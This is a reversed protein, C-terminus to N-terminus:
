KITKLLKRTTGIEDWPHEEWPNDPDKTGGSGVAREITKEHGKGLLIVTDGKKAQMLALEIAQTRNHVLFLDQDRVKGSEEAGHAIQNMIETGDIDRDDEETVVVLDAYKGALRGQIARKSEDRRGASGFLAILRGKVVPRLDKFLKEFSDPTHAFDVIVDFSQGEDVRTMRGEVNDLNAIGAEIQKAELGLAVGVSAAALSNAVNFSGPLNCKLKLKVGKIETEYTSGRPTLKLKRPAAVAGTAKPDLTYALVNEIADAFVAANEDDANVIGIRHGHKNRNALKFLKLKAGLYAGFTGHYDLHEHTVNTMVAIDFPVGMTRFQALAHSTVELVLIDMGEAKMKEIRELLLGIPQSTMHHIQPQINKGVGYAVTTMLGAKYGAALLMSHILYCTSTKGNTGTVGIVKLRRAPFGHKINQAVANAYHKPLVVKNYLGGRLAKEALQKVAKKM